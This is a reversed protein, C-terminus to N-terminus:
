TGIQDGEAAVYMLERIVASSAEIEWIRGTRGTIGLSNFVVRTEYEGIKGLSRLLQNSWTRGGDDSWRLGVKPEQLALTPSNLGIGTVFDLHLRDVALRNPYASMAASRVRFILATDNEMFSTRSIQYLNGVDNDGFIVTNNFEAAKSVRWRDSGFSFKEHWRETTRNYAWTWDPGSLVYWANGAFHYALAEIQTKDATARIDEEVGFHSVRKGEYGKGGYVVGDDGVWFIWTDLLAITDRGLCGRPIQASTNTQFPAVDSTTNSWVETSRTGFARIEQLHSVVAVLDDPNGEATVFNLADINDADSVESWFFRGDDIGYLIRSNLFTASNPSPLDADTIQTLVGGTVQFPVNNSIIVLEPTPAANHAMSVNTATSGPLSGILVAVGSTTVSYVAAGSVVFLLGAMELMGRCSGGGPLAVFLDFGDDAVLPAPHKGEFVPEVFCNFHRPGSDPGYRGPDSGTGFNLKVTAM